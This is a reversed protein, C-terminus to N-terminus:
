TGRPNYNWFHQPTLVITTEDDQIWQLTRIFFEPKCVQDADFVCVIEEQLPMCMQITVCM